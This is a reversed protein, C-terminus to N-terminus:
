NGPGLAASLSKFKDQVENDEVTDLDISHGTESRHVLGKRLQSLRAKADDATDPNAIQAVWRPKAAAGIRGEKVAAEVLAEAEDATAKERAQRGYEADALQEELWASDVMTTLDDAEVPAAGSDDDEDHAGDELDGHAEELLDVAEEDPVAPPADEQVQEELTEELAALVTAEDLNEASLGLRQAVDNLFAVDPEKRNTGVNTPTPPRPAQRRSGFKFKAFVRSDAFAAVDVDTPDASDVRDALGATVAESASYWTEKRMLDRWEESEGGARSAYIGAINDSERNLQEIALEFDEANGYALTLADHIMMESHPAMVLDDAAGVAIFSAASLAIGEVVITKKAKHRKLATMIALGDWVDGGPSHIRVTLDDVDLDALDEAFSKADVGFWGGIEEYLLVEASRGGLNNIRIKNKM